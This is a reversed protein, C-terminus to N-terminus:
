EEEVAIKFNANNCGLYARFLQRLYENYGEGEETIIAIRTDAFWTNLKLVNNGFDRLEKKKIKEKLRSAGVKTSPKVQTRIFHWLTPGDYKSSIKFEENSGMIEIQFASQLSYWIKKGQIVYTLRVKNRTANLTGDDTPTTYFIAFYEPKNAGFKTDVWVLELKARVQVKTVNHVKFPDVIGAETPLRQLGVDENATDWITPILLTQMLRVDEFSKGILKAFDNYEAKKGSFKDDDELGKCDQLFTKM